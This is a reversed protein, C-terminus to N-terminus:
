RPAGLERLLHDTGVVVACRQAAYDLAWHHYEPTFDAIADAVLFPEIDMTFADCATMLCGVHAYVGCVILQDRGAAALRDALDSRAFASYRWKTLVTDEPAPALEDIIRRSAPDGTMGPGWMDMLLGREQTSMDGPQASYFVPLGLEVAAARIRGVNSTLEVVPKQGAPFYDVFYRQMDHILLAARAPDPRWTATNAPLDVPMPYPEIVPITM